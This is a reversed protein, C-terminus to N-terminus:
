APKFNADCFHQEGGSWAPGALDRQVGAQRCAELFIGPAPQGVGVDESFVFVSFYHVVGARKLKKTQQERGGDSIIGLANGDLRRLSPVADPYAECRAEYHEM